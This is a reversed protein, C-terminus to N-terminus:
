RLQRSSALRFGLCDRRDVTREKFRFAARCNKPMDHGNGGRSVRFVGSEPGTPNTQPSIPYNSYWDSCWESVNGSMDYLGLENPAFHRVPTTKKRYEGVVSYPKKFSNNANYNMEAPDAIDKGNGFRVSRGAERAAYEWESETPLRFGDAKPILVVPWKMLDYQNKNIPDKLNKAISYAPALDRAWSLWNAYEVADYWSVNVVPRDARGWSEDHPLERGTALCFLGYQQWTVPTDALAFDSLTVRHVTEDNSEKDGLVDGMDFNGGPITVMVPFYQRELRIFRAPDIRRLYLLLEPCDRNDPFNQDPFPPNILQAFARHNFCELLCYIGEDRKQAQLFVFALEFALPWVEEPAANRLAAPKLEELADAFHVDLLYKRVERLRLQVTEIELRETEDVLFRSYRRRVIPALLDHSLRIAQSDPLETLLNVRRLAARLPERAEDLQTKLVTGSTPKDVVFRDLIELITKEDADRLVGDERLRQLQFDLLEEEATASQKLECYDDKRLRVLPDAPTRRKRAETYLKLLRNQLISTTGGSEAQLLDRAVFDAFGPELELQYRKCLGPDRWVGEIAETLANQDLPRLPLDHRRCDIRALLDTTELLYDSRFGLAVTAAPEARLTEGLVKIFYEKEGPLPDTFMEETQDLIYVPAKGPKKPLSRLRDLQKGLGETKLRREYHAQRFRELRPLVGAALFSSKGVGSQGYLCLLRIESNEICAFFDLIEPTRGFFLRAAQRDFYQLGLYPTPHSELPDLGEPLPFAALPHLPPADSKTPPIHKELKKCLAASDSDRRDSAIPHAQKTPLFKLSDPLIDISPLKAGDFLVPIIIKQATRSKEIELRVWDKPDDTRRRGEEDVGLWKKKERILVLLVKANRVNAELEEPWDMGPDLRKKDLFVADEGFHNVLAAYLIQAQPETDAIRYSIFISPHPM